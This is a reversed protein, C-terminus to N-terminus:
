YAICKVKKRAYVNMQSMERKMIQRVFLKGTQKLNANPLNRHVAATKMTTSMM